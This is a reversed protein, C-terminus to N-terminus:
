NLEILKIFNPFICPTLEVGKIFNVCQIKEEGRSRSNLKITNKYGQLARRDDNQRGQSIRLEPFDVKVKLM